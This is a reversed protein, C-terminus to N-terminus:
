VPRSHTQGHYVGERFQRSSSYDLRANRREGIQRNDYAKVGFLYLGRKIGPPDMFNCGITCIGSRTWTTSVYTPRPETADQNPARCYVSAFAVVLDFDM